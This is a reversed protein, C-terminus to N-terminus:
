HICYLFFSLRVMQSAIARSLRMREDESRSRLVEEVMQNLRALLAILAQNATAAAATSINSSMDATLCFSPLLNAQLLFGSPFSSISFQRINPHNRINGFSCHIYRNEQDPLSRPFQFNGSTRTIESIESLVILTGTRKEATAMHGQAFAMTAVDDSDFQRSYLMWQCAKSCGM